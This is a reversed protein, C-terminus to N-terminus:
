QEANDETKNVKKDLTLAVYMAIIIMIMANSM